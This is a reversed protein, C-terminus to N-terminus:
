SSVPVLNSGCVGCVPDVAELGIIEVAEGGKRCSSEPCYYTDGGDPLKARVPALQKAHVGAAVCRLGRASPETDNAFCMCRKRFETLPEPAAEPAGSEASAAPEGTPAPLYSDKLWLIVSRQGTKGPGYGVTAREFAGADLLIKVETLTLDDM